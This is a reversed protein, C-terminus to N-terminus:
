GTAVERAERNAGIQRHAPPFNPCISLQHNVTSPVFVITAPLPAFPLPGSTM